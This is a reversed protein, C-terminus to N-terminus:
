FPIKGEESPTNEEYREMIFLILSGTLHLIFSAIPRDVKNKVDPLDKKGHRASTNSITFSAQLLSEFSDCFGQFYDPILGSKMLQKKLQGQEGKDINLAKKLTSELSNNCEVITGSYDGATFNQRANLFDRCAKEFNNNTLLEYAKNLVESELYKSDLIIVQNDLIRYPMNESKFIINIDKRFNAINEPTSMLSDYIEIADFVQPPWSTLIFDDLNYVVELSDEKYGKLEKTGYSELLHQKLDDDFISNEDNWGYFSNYRRMRYIIKQRTTIPISINIKRDNLARKHRISFAIIM